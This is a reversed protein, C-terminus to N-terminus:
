KLDREMPTNAKKSDLGRLLHIYKELIECVYGAQDLKIFNDTRTINMELYYNLESMDKMEFHDTFQQKIRKMEQLDSGAILVDDVYYISILCVEEEVNKM